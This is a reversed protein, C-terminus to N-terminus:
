IFERRRVRLYLWGVAGIVLLALVVWVWPFETIRQEIREVRPKLEEWLAKTQQVQQQLEEVLQPRQRLEAIEQEARQLREAQESVRKELEAVQRSLIEVQLRLEALEKPGPSSVPPALPPQVTATPPTAPLQASETIATLKIWSSQPLGYAPPGSFGEGCSGSLWLLRSAAYLAGATSFREDLLRWRKKETDYAVKTVFVPARGYPGGAQAMRPIIGDDRALSEESDALQLREGWFSFFRAYVGKAEESKLVRIVANFAGVFDGLETVSLERAREWTKKLEGWLQEAREAYRREGTLRHIVLLANLLAAQTSLQESTTGELLQAGVRHIVQVAERAHSGVLTYWALAEVWLAQLRLETPWPPDSQDLINQFLADARARAAVGSVEGVYLESDTVSLAFASLAHLMAIQSAWEHGYLGTQADKLKNEAFQLAQAALDGLAIAILRVIAPSLPARQCSEERQRLWSVYAIVTWALAVPEVIEKSRQWRLTAADHSRPQQTLVPLGEAFPASNLSINQWPARELGARQVLRAWRQASDPIEVGLGSFLALHLVNELSFQYSRHAARPWSEEEQAPAAIGGVIVVLLIARLYRHM